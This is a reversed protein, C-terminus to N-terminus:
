FVCILKHCRPNLLSSLFRRRRRCRSRYILLLNLNAFCCSQMHTVSNQVSKTKTVRSHLVYVCSLLEKLFM